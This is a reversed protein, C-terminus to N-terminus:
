ERERQSQAINSGYMHSGGLHPEQLGDPQGGM